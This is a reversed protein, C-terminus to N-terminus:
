DLRLPNHIETMDMGAMTASRKARSRLTVQQEGAGLWSVWLAACLKETTPWSESYSQMPRYCRVVHVEEDKKVEIEFAGSVWKTRSQNGDKPRSRRLHTKKPSASYLNTIVAAIVIQGNMRGREVILLKKFHTIRVNIDM